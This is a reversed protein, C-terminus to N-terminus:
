VRSVNVNVLMALTANSLLALVILL